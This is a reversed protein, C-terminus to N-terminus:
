DRRDREVYWHGRKERLKRAKYYTEKGDQKPMDLEEHDKIDTNSRIWTKTARLNNVDNDDLSSDRKKGNNVVVCPTTTIRGVEDEEVM